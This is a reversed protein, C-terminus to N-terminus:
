LEERMVTFEGFLGYGILDYAEGEPQVEPAYKFSWPTVLGRRPNNHHPGLLNKLTGVVKVTVRNEGAVLYDTIDLEYPKHDIIGAETGNVDVVVLSGSWEDLVVKYRGSLEEVQYDKSYGVVDHYYPYGQSIWPGASVDGAQMVVWGKSRTKLTFEGLVFVPALECHVSFPNAIVSITNENFRLHEGIEFVGFSEDLWYEGEVPEVETGNVTVTYLEPREVVARFESFDTEHVIIFKYDARFGSRDAMFTDRDLIETRYQASSVWPNDPWGHHKYIKDSATYFYHEENEIEGMTLNCYDLVLVNDSVPEATVEGVAEVESWEGGSKVLEDLDLKKESAFLLLDGAMPLSFDVVLMNGEVTFPYRTIDGTGVDMCALDKGAIM